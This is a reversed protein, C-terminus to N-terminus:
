RERAASARASEMSIRRAERLNDAVRPLRYRMFFIGYLGTTRDIWPYTGFAGPSSVLTCRGNAVVVECWNGLAYHGGGRAGPPLYAMPINLTHATELAAVAAPSLIRRGRYLGNAALMTLFKAYDEATTVLGGQLNPNRVIAPDLHPRLPASWYSHTLGLPRALREEFLVAWSEGTVREALAGAVQLAPSGYKFVAGPPDELPRAAIERAAEALTIRPSQMIDFFGRLSGQGSTFSLLQRLTIRGSVGTFEPLQRGIPEDLSLRGEDVLTMVLAATMWKSASAVPLQATRSIAGVDVRYLLRGDKFVMATVGPAGDLHVVDNLKAVLAAPPSLGQSQASLPGPAAVGVAVMAVIPIAMPRVITLSLARMRDHHCAIMAWSKIESAIM